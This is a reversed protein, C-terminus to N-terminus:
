ESAAQSRFNGRGREGGGFWAAMQTGFYVSMTPMWLQLHLISYWLSKESFIVEYKLVFLLKRCGWFVQCSQILQWELAFEQLMFMIPSSLELWQMFFSPKQNNTAQTVFLNKKECIRVIATLRYCVLVPTQKGRESELKTIHFPSITWLQTVATVPLCPDLLAVAHQLKLRSCKPIM